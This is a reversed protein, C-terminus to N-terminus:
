GRRKTPRERIKGDSGDTENRRLLLSSERL